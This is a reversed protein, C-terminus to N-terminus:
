SWQSWEDRYGAALHWPPRKGPSGAPPPTANAPTSRIRRPQGAATQFLKQNQRRDRTPTHAAKTGSDWKPAFSPSRGTGNGGTRRRKSRIACAGSGARSVSVEGGGNGASRAATKEQRTRFSPACLPLCDAGSCWVRAFLEARLSLVPFCGPDPCPAPALTKIARNRYGSSQECRSTRIRAVGRRLPLPRHERLRRISRGPPGSRQGDRYM